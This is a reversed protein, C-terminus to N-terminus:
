FLHKATIRYIQNIYDVVKNYFSVYGDDGDVTGTTILLDELEQLKDKYQRYFNEDIHQYFLIKKRIERLTEIMVETGIVNNGDALHIEKLATPISVFVPESLANRLYDSIADNKSLKKNLIYEIIPTCLSIVIALISLVISLM